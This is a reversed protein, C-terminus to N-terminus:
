GEGRLNAKIVRRVTSWNVQISQKRLERAIARYGLGSLYMSMVEPIM